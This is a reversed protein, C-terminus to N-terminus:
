ISWLCFFCLFLCVAMTSQDGLYLSQPHSPIFNLPVLFFGQLITGMDYYFNTISICHVIGNSACNLCDPLYPLTLFSSINFKCKETTSGQTLVGARRAQCWRCKNIGDEWLILWSSAFFRSILNLKWCITDHQRPRCIFHHVLAGLCGILGSICIQTEQLMQCLVRQFM